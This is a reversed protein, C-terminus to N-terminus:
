LLYIFVCFFFDCPYFYRITYSNTLFFIQDLLGEGDNIIISFCGQHWPIGGKDFDKAAKTREKESNIPENM